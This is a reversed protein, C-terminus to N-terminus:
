LVLQFQMRVVWETGEHNSLIDNGDDSVPSGNPLYSCDATFKARHRYFYYVVGATFEHFPSHSVSSPLSHPDFYIYDYRVFPEWHESLVYGAQARFTADYTDHAAAPGVAGGVAGPVGANHRTYRGLYAVYMDLGDPSEYQADIVHTLAAADGAETYDAGAGLVLLPETDNLSSFDAYSEWSGLPKFEIRAAVGWDTSTTPFDQFNTNASTLGDTVAAEVRVPGQLYGVSVGQVLGQRNTFLTNILSRDAALMRTSFTLQEHDLPDRIQGARLSFPSDPLEYRIWADELALQGNHRDSGWLFQYTLHPSFLNGDLVLKIRRIEFGNQTDSDSGHKADDRFTTANRFQIYAAPHLLFNGDASRLLIGRDVAYMATFSQIDPFPSRVAADRLVAASSASETPLPQVAPRSSREAKLEAVESELNRTRDLLERTTPQTSAAPDAAFTVASPLALLTAALYQRWTM